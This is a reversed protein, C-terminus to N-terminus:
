VGAQRPQLLVAGTLRRYVRVGFARLRIREGAALHYSHVVVGARMQGAAARLLETKCEAPLHDLDLVLRDAAWAEAEDRVTLVALKLGLRRALREAVFANVEDHTLYNVTM